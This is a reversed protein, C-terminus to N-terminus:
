RTQHLFRPAMEYQLIIYLVKGNVYFWYYRHYVEPNSALTITFALDGIFAPSSYNGSTSVHM